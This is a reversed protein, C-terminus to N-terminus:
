LGRQGGGFAASGQAAEEQGQEKQQDGEGGDEKEDALLRDLVRDAGARWRRGLPGTEGRGALRQVRSGRRRRGKSGDCRGRGEGLGRRRGSGEEVGVGGVVGAQNGDGAPVDAQVVGVGLGDGALDGGELVDVQPAQGLDVVGRAAGTKSAAASAPSFASKPRTSPAEPPPM